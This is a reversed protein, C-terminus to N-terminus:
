CLVDGEVVCDVFISPTHVFSPNITGTAVVKRAQVITTKANAAMIHNFNNESGAYQLNGTQDAQDALVLAVDAKIPTELLYERGAVTIKQKGEEILTGIGTPTLVGGLGFAGCRIREVLTGLPMIEFKTENENLQRGAERNLGLHSTIIKDFQHNMILKGVGKDILGTDNSVLTLHKIGKEVLADVLLEPTGNTMFGGVAVIDGEKVLDIAETLSIQKNEM